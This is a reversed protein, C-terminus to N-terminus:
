IIIHVAHPHASRCAADIDHSHRVSRHPLDELLGMPCWRRKASQASQPLAKHETSLARHEASLAKREHKTSRAKHKTSQTKHKSNYNLSCSALVPRLSCSAFFLVCLVPRLSLEPFSEFELCFLLNKHMNDLFHM